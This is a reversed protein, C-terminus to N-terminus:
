EPDIRVKIVCTRVEESENLTCLPKHADEPFFIAYRSETLLIASGKPNKTFLALDKEKDYATAIEENFLEIPTYEIQQAGALAFQIDIYRQHAEFPRTHAPKTMKTAIVAYIADGDITIVGDKTDPALERIFALGRILLKNAFAYRFEENISGHIM